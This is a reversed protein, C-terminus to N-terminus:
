SARQVAELERMLVDLDPNMEVFEIAIRYPWLGSPEPNRECRVIRADVKREPVRNAVRFTVTISAGVELRDAAVMLLGTDSVNRSVAVSDTGAPGDLKMPFWVSYRNQVRREDM